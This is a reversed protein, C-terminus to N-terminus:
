RMRNQDDETRVPLRAVSGYNRQHYIQCSVKSALRGEVANLPEADGTVPLTRRRTSHGDLRVYGLPFKWAQM